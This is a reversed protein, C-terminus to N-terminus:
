FGEKISVPFSCFQINWFFLGWKM